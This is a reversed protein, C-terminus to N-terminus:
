LLKPTSCSLKRFVIKFRWKRTCVVLLCNVIEIKAGVIKRGVQMNLSLSSEPRPIVVLFNLRPTFCSYWLVRLPWSCTKMSYALKPHSTLSRLVLSVKTSGYFILSATWNRVTTRATSISSGVVLFIRSHPAFSVSSLKIKTIIADHKINGIFM